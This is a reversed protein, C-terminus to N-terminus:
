IECELVNESKSFDYGPMHIGEEGAKVCMGEENNTLFYKAECQKCINMKNNKCLTLHKTLYQRRGDQYVAWAAPTLIGAQAAQEVKTWHVFKFCSGDITFVCKMGDTKVCDKFNGFQKRHLNLDHKPDYKEQIHQSLKAINTIMDGPNTEVIYGILFEIFQKEGSTVRPLASEM